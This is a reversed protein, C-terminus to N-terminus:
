GDGGGEPATGNTAVGDGMDGLRTVSMVREGEGVKFLTVGQTKRGAIRIDDVPIRILQGANTVLMVQDEHGVPFSAVVQGNRTTTEINAIGSGFCRCTPASM